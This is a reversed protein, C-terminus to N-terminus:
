RGMNLLTGFIGLGGGLAILVGFWLLVLILGAPISALAFKLILGVLAIFPMNFNQVEVKQPESLINPAARGAKIATVIKETQLAHEKRMQELEQLLEVRQRDQQVCLDTLQKVQRELLVVPSAVGGVQGSQVTNTM